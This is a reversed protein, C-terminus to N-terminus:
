DKLKLNAKNMEFTAEGVGEVKKLEEIAKFPGKETRYKVIAEAKAAGIGRLEKALTRADATNINVAGAFVVGSSLALLSALMLRKM